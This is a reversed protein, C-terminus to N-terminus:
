DHLLAGKLFNHMITEGCPTMASEPHFQVGYVPYRTHEIAMIEGECMATARLCAPLSTVALSHYRAARFTELGEFLPSSGTKHMTMARGHVLKQADGISADFAAAIAQHGLCVGLIPISPAFRRVLEICIGAQEPKGPGPSLIIARPQLAEIEDLTIADNRRVEIAEGKAQSAILHALNYTFSDYNDILLIM